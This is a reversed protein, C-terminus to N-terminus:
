PRPPGGAGGFPGFGGAKGPPFRKRLEAERKQRAELYSIRQTLITAGAGPLKRLAEKLYALAEKGRGQFELYESYVVYGSPDDPYRKRAQEFRKLWAARETGQTTQIASEYAGWYAPSVKIADAFRGVRRYAEARLRPLSMQSIPPSGGWVIAEFSRTAKERNGRRLCLDGYRALTELDQVNARNTRIAEASNHLVQEYQRAAKRDQGHKEYFRALELIVAASRPKLRLAGQYNQEAESGRGAADDLRAKRVLERFEALGPVVSVNRTLDKTRWSIYGVFLVIAAVVVAGAANLWRFLRPDHSVFGGYGFVIKLGALFSDLWRPVSDAL